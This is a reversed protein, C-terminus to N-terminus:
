TRRPIKRGRGLSSSHRWSRCRRRAEGKRRGVSRAGEQVRCSGAEVPCAATAATVAMAAQMGEAAARAAPEAARAASAAMTAMAAMAARAEPRAARM